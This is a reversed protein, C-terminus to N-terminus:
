TPPPAPTKRLVRSMMRPTSDPTATAGRTALGRAASQAVKREFVKRTLGLTRGLLFNAADFPSLEEREGGVIFGRPLVGSRRGRSMGRALGWGVPLACPAGHLRTLGARIEDRDLRLAQTVERSWAHSLAGRRPDSVTRVRPGSTGSAVIATVARCLNEAISRLRERGAGDDAVEATSREFAEKSYLYQTWADFSHGDGGWGAVFTIEDPARLLKVVDNFTAVMELMGRRAAELTDAHTALNLLGCTCLELQDVAHSHASTVTPPAPAYTLGRVRELIADIALIDDEPTPPRAPRAM